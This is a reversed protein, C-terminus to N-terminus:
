KAAVPPTWIRVHHMVPHPNNPDEDATLCVSTELMGFNGTIRLTGHLGTDYRDTPQCGNLGPCGSLLSITWGLPIKDLDIDIPADPGQGVQHRWMVTLPQPLQMSVLDVTAADCCNLPLWTSSVSPSLAAAANFEARASNPNGCFGALDGGPTALDDLHGPLDDGTLGALDPPTGYALDAGALDATQGALDGGGPLADHGCGAVLAFAICTYRM